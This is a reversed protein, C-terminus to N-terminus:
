VKMEEDEEEEEEELCCHRSINTILPPVQCPVDRVGAAGPALPPVKRPVQGRDGNHYAVPVLRRHQQLPGHVGYELTGRLGQQILDDQHVVVPVQVGAVGVGLVGLLHGLHQLLEGQGGLDLQDLIGLSLTENTGAGNACIPDSTHSEDDM